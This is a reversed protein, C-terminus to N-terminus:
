PWSLICHYRILRSCFGISLRVLEHMAFQHQKSNLRIYRDNYNGYAIIHQVSASHQALYSVPLNNPVCSCLWDFWTCNCLM